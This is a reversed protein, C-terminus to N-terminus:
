PMRRGHPLFVALLLLVIPVNSVWLLRGLVTLELVLGLAVMM